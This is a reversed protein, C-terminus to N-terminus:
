SSLLINETMEITFFLPHLHNDWHLLPLCKSTFVINVEKKIDLQSTNKYHCKYRGSPFPDIMMMM